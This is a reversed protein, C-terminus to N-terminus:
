NVQYRVLRRETFKEANYYFPLTESVIGVNEAYRHHAYKVKGRAFGIMRQNTTFTMKANSTTFTGAETTYPADKDEMKFILHYMTDSGGTSYFSHLVTSFDQSSFQLYGLHDKIYHLTDRLYKYTSVIDPRFVKFYTRNNIVTDKEVYCSDYNNTAVGNGSSDVEYQRYIWYNGVKLQSYAPYTVPVPPIPKDKKCAVSLVALLLLTFLCKANQM